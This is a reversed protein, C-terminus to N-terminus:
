PCIWALFPAETDFSNAKNLHRENPYIQNVIQEFDTNDIKLLDDPYRSTLHTLHKMLM